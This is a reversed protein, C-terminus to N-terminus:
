ADGDKPWISRGASARAEDLRGQAWAQAEQRTAAFHYPMPPNWVWFIGTFVGRAVGSKVVLASGVVWRRVSATHQALWESWMKRHRAGLPSAASADIVIAMPRERALLAACYATRARVDDDTTTGRVVLTVLPFLSEDFTTREAAGEFKLPAPM